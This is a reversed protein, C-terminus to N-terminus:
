YWREVRRTNWEQLYRQHAPTEPYRENPGYPFRSMGHFPLPGVTDPSASHLDMDKGFGDVYVLYDRVWGAPPAPIRDLDFFAEIEDGALTAVFMDDRKLLLPSVEGYRTYNGIHTKWTAAPFIQRRDYVLPKGSHSPFGLYHLDARDPSLRYTKFDRRPPSSDVLIRDWHIRMNTRIRIKRSDSLFKGSLDVTMPKPLGAPFGM